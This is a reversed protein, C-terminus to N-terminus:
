IILWEHIGYYYLYYNLEQGTNTNEMASENACPSRKAKLWGPLSKKGIEAGRLM